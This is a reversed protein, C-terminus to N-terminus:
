GGVEQLVADDHDVTVQEQPQTGHIGLPGAIAEVRKAAAKIM